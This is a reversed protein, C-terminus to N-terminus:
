SRSTPTGRRFTFSPSPLTVAPATSTRLPRPCACIRSGFVRRIWSAASNKEQIAQAVQSIEESTLPKGAIETAIRSLRKVFELAVIQGAFLDSVLSFVEGVYPVFRSARPDEM